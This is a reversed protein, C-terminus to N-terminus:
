FLLSGSSTSVDQIAFWAFFGKKPTLDTCKESFIPSKPERRLTLRMNRAGVPDTKPLQRILRRKSFRYVM